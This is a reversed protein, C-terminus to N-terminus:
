YAPWTMGPLARPWVAESIALTRAKFQFGSIFLNSESSGSHPLMGLRGPM